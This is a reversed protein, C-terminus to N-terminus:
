PQSRGFPRFRRPPREIVKSAEARRQMERRAADLQEPPIMTRVATAGQELALMWARRMNADTVPIGQRILTPEGENAIWAPPPPPVNEETLQWFRDVDVEIARGQPDFLGKSVDMAMRDIIVQKEPDTLKKKTDSQKSSIAAWTRNYFADTEEKDLKLATAKFMIQQYDTRGDELREYRDKEIDEAVGQIAKWHSESLYAVPVGSEVIGLFETRDEDSGNALTQLRFFWDADDQAARVAQAQADLASLADRQDQSLSRWEHPRREKIWHLPMSQEGMETRLTEFTEAQLLAGDRIVQAGRREAYAVADEVQQQSWDREKGIERMRRVLHQRAKEPPRWTRGTVKALAEGDPETIIPAEDFEAEYTEAIERLSSASEVDGRARAAADPLLKAGHDALLQTALGSHGAEIADQISAAVMESEFAEVKSSLWGTTDTAILEPHAKVFDHILFSGRQLGGFLAQSGQEPDSAAIRTTNHVGQLQQALNGTFYAERAPGAHGQVRRDLDSGVQQLLPEALARARPSLGELRKGFGERFAQPESAAWQFFEEGLKWRGGQEGAWLSDRDAEATTVVAMAQQRDRELAEEGAIRAVTAGVGAGLAEPGAVAQARVAPLGQAPGVQRRYDPIATVM